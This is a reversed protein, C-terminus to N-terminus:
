ELIIETEKYEKSSNGAMLIFKGPETVWRHDKWFAFDRPKLVFELATEEGPELTVRKFRKLEMQPRVLSAICDRIYLQVVEDGRTNGTNKVTVSVKVNSRVTFKGDKVHPKSIDFSTYSLGYGFPYLPEVTTKYYDPTRGPWYRNYHCQIRGANVPVTVSLKGGPVNEGFITQAVATGTEQGLYFGLLISPVNKDAWTISSPRGDLIILILKKSAKQVAKLLRCQDGKLDLDDVDQNEMCTMENGGLVLITVDADKAAKAAGKIDKTSYDDPDCAENFTVVFHDKAYNRIGDLVSVYHKPRDTAYNGLLIRDANPGIVACTNISDRNLPLMNNENKLLIIAKQAAKLALADHKKDYLVEERDDRPKGFYLAKGAMSVHENGKSSSYVAELSEQRPDATEDDPLGLEYKKILVRKVSKDILEEKIRGEQIAKLLVPGYLRNENWPVMWALETDVGAKLAMCASSEPGDSVYLAAHLKRIDGNDSVVIGSFGYEDRLIDQIIERNAHCPVGNLSHHAPMVSCVNAEKVQAEFPPLHVERLSRESIEMAAGNLGGMPEGDAVFHKATAAIHDKDLYLSGTGQLGLTFALGIRSVHYPDEGYAEQIRGWRPDRVVGLMPGYCQHIGSARCEKAIVTSIEEILGTDWTCGLALAQPFSTAESTVAGHLCEGQQMHPIGLRQNGNPFSSAMQHLKEELTMKKIIDDAWQEAKKRRETNYRDM